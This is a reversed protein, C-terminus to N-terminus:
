APSGSTISWWGVGAYNPPSGGIAMAVDIDVAIAQITSRVAMDEEYPTRDQLYRYLGARSVPALQCMREISLSGQRSM